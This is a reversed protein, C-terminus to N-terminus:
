AVEVVILTINDDGGREIALDVLDQAADQLPRKALIDEIESLELFNSLGDSCLLFRDGTKTERILTDIEVDEQYGVSRTIINRLQHNKADEASILGAKVQENVLSHDETIQEVKGERLMYVRSDGVYAVYVKGDQIMMAVTTTGMGRLEPHEKAKSFIHDGAVQIARRLKETVPHFDAALKTQPTFDDNYNLVIDEITSVAIQSAYEGGAHGGMGDAVVFLNMGDNILLNDENKERKLGVDTVGYSITRM